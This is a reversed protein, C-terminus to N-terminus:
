SQQHKFDKAYHHYGVIQFIIVMYPIFYSIWIKHVNILTTIWINIVLNILAIWYKLKNTAFNFKRVDKIIDNWKNHDHGIKLKGSKNMEKMNDISSQPLTNVFLDDIKSIFGITVFSKIIMRLSPEKTFTFLLAILTFLPSVIQMSSLLINFIRGRRNQHSIKLRKLFILM